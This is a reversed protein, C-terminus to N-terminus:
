RDRFLLINLVRLAIEKRKTVYPSFQSLTSLGLCSALKNLCFFTGRTASAWLLCLSAANRGQAPAGRGPMQQWFCGLSSLARAM